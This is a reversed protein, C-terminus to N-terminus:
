DVDRYFPEGYSYEGDWRFVRVTSTYQSGDPREYTTVADYEEREPYALYPSTKEEGRERRRRAMSAASYDIYDVQKDEPSRM